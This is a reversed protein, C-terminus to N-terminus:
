VVTLELFELFKERNMSGETVYSAVMGDVTLFGEATVRRGRVFVGKMAARCGKRARGKRRIITREDKSTEDL